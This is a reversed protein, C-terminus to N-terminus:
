GDDRKTKKDVTSFRVVVDGFRGVDDRTPPVDQGVEMLKPTVTREFGFHEISYYEGFEISTPRLLERGMAQHFSETIEKLFCAITDNLREGDFGVYRPAIQKLEVLQRLHQAAQAHAMIWTTLREIEQDPHDKLMMRVQAAHLARQKIAM